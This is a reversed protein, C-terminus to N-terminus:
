VANALQSNRRALCSGPTWSMSGYDNTNTGGWTLQVDSPSAPGSLSFGVTLAQTAPGNRNIDVAVGPDGYSTWQMAPSVTLVPISVDVIGVANAIVTGSGADSLQVALTQSTVRYYGLSQWNQNGITGDAAPASQQNCNVTQLTTTNDFITFPAQQAANSGGASWAAYVQYVHGSVLSNFTWTATAQGSSGQVHTDQNGFNPNNHVWASTGTEAFGTTSTYYLISQFPPAGTM